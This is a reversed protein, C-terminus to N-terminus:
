YLLSKIVHVNLLVNLKSFTQFCSSGVKDMFDPRQDVSSTLCTVIIVSFFAYHGEPVRVSCVVM